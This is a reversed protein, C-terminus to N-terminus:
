KQVYAWTETAQLCTCVEELCNPGVIKRGVTFISVYLLYKTDKFLNIKCFDCIPQVDVHKGKMCTRINLFICGWKFYQTPLNKNYLNIKNLLSANLEDSPVTFVNIIYSFIEVEFLHKNQVNQEDFFEKFLKFSEVFVNLLVTKSM